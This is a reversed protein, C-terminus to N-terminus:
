PCLLGDYILKINHNRVNLLWTRQEGLHVCHEKKDLVDKLLSRESILKDTEGIGLIDRNVIHYNLTIGGGVFTNKM